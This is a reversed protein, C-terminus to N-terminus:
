AAAWRTTCPSVLATPGPMNESIVETASSLCIMPAIDIVLRSMSPRVAELSDYAASRKNNKAKATDFVVDVHTAGAEIANDAIERSAAATDKYGGRRQSEVAQRANFLPFEYNEPLQALYKEQREL